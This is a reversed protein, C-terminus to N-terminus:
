APLTTATRRGRRERLAASARETLNYLVPVLVLTLLTSTTLGGIVVLALPQSIFVSGGTLGLAMPTLAGITAAATMLIPRLRYRSGEIVADVVSLGQERKQNVLDILVIANTVVIGVLMLLGILSPVGLPTGTLLLLALAGTAAFPVSVLLILPQLLSRFTAVMVLYVIAISALLAVYLDAFASQQEASVGAIEAEAGDPLDLADLQEQLRTTIGGLNQDTATATVTATRQGDQRTLSTPQQVESVEAVQGLPVIGTATPVPTDRLAQVDGPAQGLLVVVDTTRGAIDAQGIPAGRLLGAVAQGIASESTGAQTAAARDVQIQVAPADSALNNVVDTTGQVDAMAEAVLDAAERLTQDDDARVVVEVPPLGFGAQGTTVTLEGADEVDAIAARLDQEVRAQDADLDTTIAFTATNSGGGGGLFATQLGSGGSGVTVQYTEVGDLEAIVEEVQRAAADTVELSTGAPLQQDVSLTNQGADGIFNTELRTGAALTGGLVAVAIALTILPHAIAGRLVPLYSRQLLGHREGQEVRDRDVAAHQHDAPARLFWYALVPIITLSVVLSALLAVAVTFAFPRFLEGVQGGVIGIPVFVAATTITSSTVAGAVERVATLIAQAKPEGYGLHRKINEIVVISDDVVRGVAVTLAGLTLINLSYGGVLLGTMAILLSLPISIATVLTSRLSLLFLMIVIVAFILGLLGETSLDEISKEIFPAQDFVVDVAAGEGLAAEIGPILDRVDHSVSVTNGDPTKTIALAVSAQGNTRAYSTAPVQAQEVTAVDGLLVPAGSPDATPLPIAAIDQVSSLREGVVVNLSRQGDTVTGAPIVAGNAQLASTLADLGIGAAGLAVPDPVIEVRTERAGSLTVERVGELGRLRPVVEEEVRTVLEQEDLQPAAVALQVVPLQDISGTIVSPTVGTPLGTGARTVAQELDQQAAQLDTGYALEVSVVSLSNRSTSETGELGEVGSVAAEVVETVQREVVDPAAGPLPTVVVALPIELSPILEQKLSTTSLVGAVILILTALAVVARNALSLRALRTM